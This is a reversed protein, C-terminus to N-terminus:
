EQTYKHTTDPNIFQQLQIQIQMSKIWPSKQENLFKSSSNVWLSPKQLGVYLVKSDPKGWIGVKKEVTSTPPLSNWPFALLDLFPASCSAAFIAKMAKFSHLSNTRIWNNNHKKLKATVCKFWNSSFKHYVVMFNIEIRIYNSHYKCKRYKRDKYKQVCIYFHQM